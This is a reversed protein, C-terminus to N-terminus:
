QAAPQQGNMAELGPLEVRMGPEEIAKPQTAKLRELETEYAESGEKLGQLILKRELSIAGM